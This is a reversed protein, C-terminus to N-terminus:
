VHYYWISLINLSFVNDRRKSDQRGPMFYCLGKLHATIDIRMFSKKTNTLSTSDVTDTPLDNWVTNQETCDWRLLWDVFTVAATRRLYSTPVAATEARSYMSGLEDRRRSTEVERTRRCQRSTRCAQSSLWISLSLQRRPLLSGPGIWAVSTSCQRRFDADTHFVCSWTQHRRNSKVYSLLHQKLTREFSTTCSLEVWCLVVSV